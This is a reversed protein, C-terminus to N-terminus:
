SGMNRISVNPCMKMYRGSLAATKRWESDTKNKLNFLIYTYIYMRIYTRVYIYIYTRICTYVTTSFHSNCLEFGFYAVLLM